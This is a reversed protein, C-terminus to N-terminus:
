VSAKREEACSEKIDIANMMLKMDNILAGVEILMELITESCPKADEGVLEELTPWLRTSGGGRIGGGMNSARAACASNQADGSDSEESYGEPDLFGITTKVNSGEDEGSSSESDSSEGPDLSESSVSLLRPTSPDHSYASAHLLLARDSEWPVGGSKEGPSVDGPSNEGQLKKGPLNEGQLNKEATKEGPAKGARSGKAKEVARRKRALIVFLLELVLNYLLPIDYRKALM